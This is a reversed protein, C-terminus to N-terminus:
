NSDAAAAFERYCSGLLAQIARVHRRPAKSWEDLATDRGTQWSLYDAPLVPDLLAELSRVPPLLDHERSGLAASWPQVQGAFFRTVVTRLIPAARPERGGTCLAAAQARDQLLKSASDLHAAQLALASMLEGGDGTAIDALLLELTEGDVRYDGALWRDAAASIQRLADIVVSSTQAPYDNLVPATRWFDRYEENGLTANFILAPLQQRKLQANGALLAALATEGQETQYDICDDVQSLFELELILRQSPPAVRGLSSNRRAVTHQLACGRLKLFDLGDISGTEIGLQLSTWRPPPSVTAPTPATVDAGLPRALRQTYDALRAEPGEGSCGGLLLLALLGFRAGPNGPTFRKAGPM